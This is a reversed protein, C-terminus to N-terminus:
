CNETREYAGYHGALSDTETWTYSTYGGPGITRCGSDSHNNIVANKRVTGSGCNHYTWTHTWQGWGVGSRADYTEVTAGCPEGGAANSATAPLVAITAASLSLVAAM